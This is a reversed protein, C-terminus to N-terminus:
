CGCGSCSACNGSWNCDGLCYEWKSAGCCRFNTGAEWDCTANSKLQCTGWQCSNTCVEEGCCHTTTNYTSCMCDRREGPACSGQAQCTGFGGWTCDNGCTRTQLGCNGCDQEETAGTSCVGQGTCVPEGWLGNPDCTRRLTGCNGCGGLELIEGPLCGGSGGAAGAYGGGAYGGGAFGADGGAAGGASTGGTSPWGAAGGSGSVGGAGAQGAQGGFSGGDAPDWPNSVSADDVGVACSPLFLSVAVLSLFLPVQVSSRSPLTGRSERHHRPASSRVHTRERDRALGTREFGM